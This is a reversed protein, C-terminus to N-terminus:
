AYNHWACIREVFKQTVHRSIGKNRMITLQARVASLASECQATCTETCGEHAAFNERLRRDLKRLEQQQITQM